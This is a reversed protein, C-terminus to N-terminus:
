APQGLRLSRVESSTVAVASAVLCLGGAVLFSVTAGAHAAVTALLNDGVLMPLAQAMGLLAQFRALMGAPSALTYAPFVHSTFTATGIGMVVAGALALPVEPSVALVLVGLTAVVPGLTLPLLLQQHTGVKAVLLSVGLTGVIWATEVLGTQGATWGRERAALPVSLSLMPILSGAVLAVAALLPVVGPVRRAARLGEAIRHWTSGESPEPVPEYPPRVAALVAVVVLLSVLDAVVAGGLAFAAVVVGGLPPGVLRSMSLLSGTLSMARPVAEPPVFLRPFAGSAPLAFASVAGTGLALAGLALAAPVDTREVVLYAALLGSTALGCAILTRRLGWRDGVAGGVLMLVTRPLMGMTLLLGAVQAGIGTATWAIAFYLVGDGVASVTAAALWLAFGRTMRM